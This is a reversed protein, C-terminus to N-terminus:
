RPLYSSPTETVSVNSTSLVQEGPLLTLFMNAPHSDACPHDLVAGAVCAMHAVLAHTIVSLPELFPTFRPLALPLFVSSPSFIPQDFPFFFM